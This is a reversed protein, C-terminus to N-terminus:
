IMKTQKRQLITMTLWNQYQKIISNCKMEKKRDIIERNTGYAYTEVSDISQIRKVANASWAIKNIEATFINHKKSRFRQQSKLISRNNKPFEKDNERLNHM